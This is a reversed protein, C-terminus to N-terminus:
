EVAEVCSDAQTKVVYTKQGTAGGSDRATAVYFRIEGGTPRPRDGVHEISLTLGHQVQFAQQTLTQQELVDLPVQAQLAPCLQAWGRNADDTAISQMFLDAPTPSSARSPETARWAGAGALGALVLLNVVVFPHRGLGRALASLM